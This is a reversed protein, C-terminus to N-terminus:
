CDVVCLYFHGNLIKACTFVSCNLFFGPSPHTPHFKICDTRKTYMKQYSQPESFKDQWNLGDLQSTEHLSCSNRMYGRILEQQMCLVCAFIWQLATQMDFGVSPGATCHKLFRIRNPLASQCSQKYVHKYVIKHIQTPPTPNSNPDVYHMSPWLGM